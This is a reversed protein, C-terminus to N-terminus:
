PPPSREKELVYTALSPIGIEYQDAKMDWIFGKDILVQVQSEVRKEDMETDSEQITSVVKKISLPGVEKVKRSIHAASEVVKLKRLELYRQHYFEKKQENFDDIGSQYANHTGEHRRMHKHVSEGFVQIFYPYGHTQEVAQQLCPKPLHIGLRKLPEDIAMMTDEPPLCSLKIKEGREHFTAKSNALVTQLEPTGTLLLLFPARHTTTINQTFDLLAGLFEPQLTHAEDICLAFPRDFLAKAVIDHQKYPHDNYSPNWQLKVRNGIISIENPFKRKMKQLVSVPLQRLLTDIVREMDGQLMSAPLSLYGLRKTDLGNTFWQQLCTKGTGRPGIISVMPMLPDKYYLAQAITDLSDKEDERGAFVPPMTGFGPRFFHQISVDKAM